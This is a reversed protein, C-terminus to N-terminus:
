SSSRRRGRRCRRSPGPCSSPSRAAAARRRVYATVWRSPAPLRALHRHERGQRTRDMGSRARLARVGRRGVRDADGPRRVDARGPERAYQRPTRARSRPAGPRGLVPPRVPEGLSWQWETYTAQAESGSDGASTFVSLAESMATRARDLDGSGFYISAKTRWIAAQTQPDSERTLGTDFMAQARGYNGALALGAGVAYYEAGSVDDPIVSIIDAAQQSTVVLSPRPPHGSTPWPRPTTPMSRSSLPTRRPSPTSAPSSGRSATGRQRHTGRAPESSATSRPRCPCCSRSSRSSSPPRGSGRSRRAARRSAIWDNSSTM